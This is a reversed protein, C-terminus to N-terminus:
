LWDAMCPFHSMPLQIDEAHDADIRRIEIM